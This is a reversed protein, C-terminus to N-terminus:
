ELSPESSRHALFDQKIRAALNHAQRQPEPIRFRRLCRRVLETASELDCLHGPSIFVPKIGDRTCYVNGVTEGKYILPSFNGHRLEFPEYKGCLRTKGCGVTPIRLWLGLHSAIGLKRPHAIGQGDCLMVDPKIKLQSFGKLLPPIERFSLLGPVYPYRVPEIVHTSEILDLEPWKFAMLAAILLGDSQIYSLDASGLVDFDMSLHQIRIEHSLEKQLVIAESPVLDWSHLHEM